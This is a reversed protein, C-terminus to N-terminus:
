KAAASVGTVAEIIAKSSAPKLLYAVAGAELAERRITQDDMASLLVVRCTSDANLRLNKLFSIGSLKPMRIDCVVADFPNARYMELATMGNGATEVHYGARRLVASVYEVMTSDDDVVMARKPSVPIENTM